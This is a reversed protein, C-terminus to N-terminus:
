LKVVLRLLSILRYLIQPILLLLEHDFVLCTASLDSREPKAPVTVASARHVSSPHSKIRDPSSALPLIHLNSKSMPIPGLSLTGLLIVPRGLRQCFVEDLDEFPCSLLSM